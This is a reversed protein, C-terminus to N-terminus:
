EYKLMLSWINEKPNQSLDHKVLPMDKNYILILLTHLLSQHVEDEYFWTILNM